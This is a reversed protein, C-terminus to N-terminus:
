HTAVESVLCRGLLHQTNQDGTHSNRDAVEEHFSLVTDCSHM